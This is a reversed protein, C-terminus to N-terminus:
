QPQVGGFPVITGGPPTAGPLAAPAPSLSQPQTPIPAFSSPSSAAGLPGGSSSAETGAAFETTRADPRVINRMLRPTILLVIETKNITDSTSSFLRGLVPFDGLGPVRSASRRDEDNILGALVQTEGDKLRLVTNTKRTGIQYTLSGGGQTQSQIEKTISSVELGVKIGVDDELYILPEVELQLGVDLYSV